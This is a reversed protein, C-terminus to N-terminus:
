MDDPHPDDFPPIKNEKPQKDMERLRMIQEYADNVDEDSFNADIHEGMDDGSEVIAAPDFYRFDLDGRPDSLREGLEAPPMQALMTRRKSPSYDEATSYEDAVAAELSSLGKVVSWAIDFAEAM